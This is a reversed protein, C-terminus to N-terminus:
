QYHDWVTSGSLTLDSRIWELLMDVTEQDVVSSALPPMRYQDLNEMRNLLVSETPQTSSIIAPNFFGFNHGNPMVDILNMDELETTWRMDINAQTVGGPQHCM